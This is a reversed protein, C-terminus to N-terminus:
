FVFNYASNTEFDLIYNEGSKEARRLVETGDSGECIVKNTDINIARVTILNEANTNNDTSM